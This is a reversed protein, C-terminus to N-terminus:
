PHLLSQFTTIFFNITVEVYLSCSHYPKLLLVHMIYTPLSIHVVKTPNRPLLSLLFHYPLPFISHTLITRHSRNLHCADISLKTHLLSSCFLASCPLELILVAILSTSKFFHDIVCLVYPDSWCFQYYPYFPYSLLSM